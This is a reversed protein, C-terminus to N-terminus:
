SGVRVAYSQVGPEVFRLLSEGEAELEGRVSKPLRGFPELVLAAGGRKREVEWGGAIFGDVTFTQRIDGNVAIM